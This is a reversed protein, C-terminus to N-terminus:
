EGQDAAKRYWTAAQGLDQPAGKGNAYMVGLSLQALVAGQDALPRLLRMATAYDGRKYAALGEGLPDAASNRHQHERIGDDMQDAGAPGFLSLAFVCVTFVLRWM